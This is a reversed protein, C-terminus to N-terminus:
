LTPHESKSGELWPVRIVLTERELIVGATEGEAFAEETLAIVESGAAVSRGAVSPVSRSNASEIGEPNSSKSSSM